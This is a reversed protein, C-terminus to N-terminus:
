LKIKELIQDIKKNLDDITGDNVILYDAMVIPGGKELNEIEAYDRSLAEVPSFSRYKMKPDEQYRKSREALRSYRLLPPAYVAVVLFNEKYKEKFVKYESWSYLGDAVVNSQGLAQDIKPLNLIAFAGMGYKKRLEERVTRENEEKVELGRRKVEDLTIQGIRIYYYGNKIFRDAVESKGSGCMGVIAVVKKGPM